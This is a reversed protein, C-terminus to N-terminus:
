QSSNWDDWSPRNDKWDKMGERFSSRVGSMDVDMDDSKWWPGKGEYSDRFSNLQTETDEDLYDRWQPRSERYERRAQNFEYRPGREEEDEEETMPEEEPADGLMDGEMDGMEEEMMDPQVVPEEAPATWERGAMFWQKPTWDENADMDMDDKFGRWSDKWDGGWGAEDDWDDYMRGYTYLRKANLGRGLGTQERLAKWDMEDMMEEGEEDDLNLESSGLAELEDEPEDAGWGSLMEYM